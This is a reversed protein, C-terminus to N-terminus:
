AGDAVRHDAPYIYSHLSQQAQIRGYQLPAGGSEGGALRSSHRSPLTTAGPELCSPLKAREPTYMARRLVGFPQAPVSSSGDVRVPPCTIVSGVSSPAKGSSKSTM